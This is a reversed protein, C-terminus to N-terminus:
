LILQNYLGKRHSLILETWYCVQRHYLLKIHLVTFEKNGMAINSMCHCHYFFFVTQRDTSWYVWFTWTVHLDSLTRRKKPLWPKYFHVTVKWICTDCYYSSRVVHVHLSSTGCLGVVARMLLQLDNFNYSLSLFCYLAVKFLALFNVSESIAGVSPEM